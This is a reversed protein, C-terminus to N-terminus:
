AGPSMPRAKASVVPRYRLLSRAAALVDPTRVGLLAPDPETSFPEGRRAGDASLTRHPGETPPGWNSAPVPGFLTVSPTQFAYALHAPGTDGSVVLRAHAVLAALEALGTRGALVDADPLGALRGLLVADAREAPAGTVVVRGAHRLLRAVTAFREVPWRRSPHAAGPHIVVAGPAPAPAAPRRLLLDAPDARIGHAALMRCWRDREHLDDRWVPGAWGHGRHGIRRGPSLADLVANSEPGRGHLNIAVEPRAATGPLPVLGPVPLVTDVCGALEVLPRLWAPTALVIESEPFARRIGRLAPVSALFDGLKLARLVLVRSV